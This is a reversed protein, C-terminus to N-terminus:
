KNKLRFFESESLITDANILSIKIRDPNLFVLKEKTTDSNIKAFIKLNIGKSLSDYRFQQAASDIPSMIILRKGNLRLYYEGNETFEIASTAVTKNQWIGVLSSKNENSRKEKCGVQVFVISVLLVYILNKM